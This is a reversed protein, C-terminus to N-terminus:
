DLFESHIINLREYNNILNERNINIEEETNWPDVLTVSDDDVNKVTYAHNAKLGCVSEGIVGLTMACDSDESQYHNLAETIEDKTCAIDLEDAGFIKFVSYPNGGDAISFKTEVSDDAVMKEIALEVALVDDDGTSYYSTEDGFQKNQEILEEPSITYSKDKGEFSVDIGGDSQVNISDDLVQKGSESYSMALIASLLWCDGADGQSFSEDIKGNVNINEPSFVSDSQESLSDKNTYEKNYSSIKEELTRIGSIILGFM